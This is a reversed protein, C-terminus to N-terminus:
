LSLLAKRLFKRSRFREAFRHNAEFEGAGYLFSSKNYDSKM